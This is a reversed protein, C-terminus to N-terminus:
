IPYVPSILGGVLPVLVASLNCSQDFCAPLRIFLIEMFDMTFLM